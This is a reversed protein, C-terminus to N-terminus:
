RSLPPRGADSPMKGNVSDIHVGAPGRQDEAEDHGTDAAAEDVRGPRSRSRRRRAAVTPIAEPM